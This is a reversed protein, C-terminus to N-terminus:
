QASRGGITGSDSKTSLAFKVTAIQQWVVGSLVVAVQISRSVPKGATEDARLTNTIGETDFGDASMNVETMSVQFKAFLGAPTKTTGKPLRPFAIRVNKFLKKVGPGSAIGKSTVTVADFVNGIGFAFQQTSGPTLNLGAPLEITGGFTVLDPTGATAASSKPFTFKGKTTAKAIAHNKPPAGVLPVAGVEAGSMGIMKRGRGKVVGTTADAASSTAVYIGSNDAKFVPKTGPVTGSRGDLTNFDTFVNFAARNLADVNVGFTCLGGDSKSLVVSIGNLPNTDAIGNALNPIGAGGSNPGLVEVSVQFPTPPAEGNSVSLQVTYMAETSFAHTVTSGTVPPSGDMFDWTFTLPLGMPDTAAATFTVTDNVAVTTNDASASTISPSAGSVVRLTVDSSNAQQMLALNGPLASSQVTAFQGTRSAFTIVKLSDHYAPTYSFGAFVNGDLSATGAVALLGIQTPSAILPELEGTASQTFSSSALTNSATIVVTGSNSFAIGTSLSTTGSSAGVIFMGANAFTAPSTGCTITLGPSTVSFTGAALNNFTTSSSMDFNASTWNTVGSNNITTGSFGGGTINFVGGSQITVTAISIAGSPNLALTGAAPVILTGAGSLIGTSAITATGTVQLSIGSNVSISEPYGVGGMSLNACVVNSTITITAGGGTAIIATDGAGPVGMPSWNAPVNWNGPSFTNWSYSQANATTMAVCSLGLSVIFLCQVFRKLM